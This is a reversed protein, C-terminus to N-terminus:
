LAGSRFHGNTFETFPLAQQLDGTRAKSSKNRNKDKKKYKKHQSRIDPCAATKEGSDGRDEETQM